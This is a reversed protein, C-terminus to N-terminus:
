PFIKDKIKLIKYIIPFLFVWSIFWFFSCVVKIIEWEEPLRGEEIFAKGFKKGFNSKSIFWYTAMAVILYIAIIM